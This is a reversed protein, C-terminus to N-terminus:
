AHDGEGSRPQSARGGERAGGVVQKVLIKDGLEIPLRVSICHCWCSRGPSPTRTMGLSCNHCGDLDRSM